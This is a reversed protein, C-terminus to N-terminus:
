PPIRIDVMTPLLRQMMAPDNATKALLIVGEVYALMAEATADTDIVGIEGAAVAQELTERLLGRLRAFVRAVRSRLLEDQGAQEAALNGFPCGPVAGTDRFFGAQYQTNLAAFRQLREMPGVDEAFAKDLLGSKLRDFGSDLVALMLERKSPFFHYFSGKSVGAEACIAAVGVDAYSRSTMLARASDVIRQRTDASADM